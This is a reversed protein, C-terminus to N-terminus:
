VPLGVVLSYQGTLKHDVQIDKIDRLNVKSSDRQNMRISELYGTTTREFNVRLEMPHLLDIGRIANLYRM